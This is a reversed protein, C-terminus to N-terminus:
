DSPPTPLDSGETYKVLLQHLVRQSYGFRQHKAWAPAFSFDAPSHFEQVVVVVVVVIAEAVVVVVAVVVVAVVSEVVVVVVVVAVAVAVILM